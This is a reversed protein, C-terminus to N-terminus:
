AMLIPLFCKKYRVKSMARFSTNHDQLILSAPPGPSAQSILLSDAQFFQGSLKCLLRYQTLLQKSCWQAHYCDICFCQDDLLSTEFNWAGIPTVQPAIQHMHGVRKSATATGSVEKPAEYFALYIFCTKGTNYLSIFCQIWVIIFPNQFFHYLMNRCSEIMVAPTYQVVHHDSVFHWTWVIIILMFERQWLICRGTSM